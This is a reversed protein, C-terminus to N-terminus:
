MLLDCVFVRQKEVHGAPHSKRGASGLLEIRLGRGIESGLEGCLLYDLTGKDVAKL